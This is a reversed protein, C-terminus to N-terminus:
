SFLGEWQQGAQDVFVPERDSGTASRLTSSLSKRVPFLRM